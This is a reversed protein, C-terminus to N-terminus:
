REQYKDKLIRNIEDPNSYTKSYKDREKEQSIDPEIQYFYYRYMKTPMSNYEPNKSSTIREIEKNILVIQNKIDQKMKPTLNPTHALDSELQKITSKYRSLNTPHEDGIYKTSLWLAGINMATVAINVIPIKLMLTDFNDKSFVLKHLGTVLDQSYGYMAAFQDAFQEDSRADMKLSMILKSFNHGVEHLIVAVIESETIQEGFMLTTYVCVILRTNLKKKDFRFGDKTVIVANEARNRKIFKDNLDYVGGDKGVIMGITYANYYKEARHLTFIVEGFGFENELCEGMQKLLPDNLVKNFISPSSISEGKYKLRLKGIIDELKLMNFPKGFYLENLPQMIYEM